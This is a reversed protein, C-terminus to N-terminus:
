KVRLRVTIIEFPRYDFMAGSETRDMEAVDNEMLDCLMAAKVKRSCTLEARGRANHCEYMRVILDNSDEARKVSEIVINRDECSVFRQTCDGAGSTSPQLKWHLPANFAYAAQVVQAWNYSGFHPLLLYSFKHKGMDATPDPAKPSRLLTMRLVNGLVDHGYKGDNILAVGQDGESVDVWKQACVEFKAMDWSTNRHTPREVNGFQIEFTARQANINLPFAVKLMKEDERWDVVTDFRIGPTPGLSITQVISSKGFRKEMVAAVRVPGHETIEFRDSHVLDRQTELAFADVDWADWFTPRDDFLHFMNALTGPEFYESGDELSVISSINGHQDFRVSLSENEIRRTKAKLTQKGEFPTTRLDAVAVAGLAAEPIRFALWKEGDEVITQVPSSQGCCHISQVQRGTPAPIRGETQVDAFQFLAIPKSFGEADLM